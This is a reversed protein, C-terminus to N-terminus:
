SVFCKLSKAALLKIMEARAGQENSLIRVQDLRVQPM